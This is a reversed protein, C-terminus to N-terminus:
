QSAQIRNRRGMQLIRDFEEKTLPMVSLRSQKILRMESLKPEKKVAELTVPNPLSTEATLEVSVWRGEKATPDPKNGRSVRAIGMVAKLPEGEPADTGSHYYLVKDKVRMNQLNKCAQFNRVGTWETTGDKRFQTWSYGAPEQKVLWYQMTFLDRMRAKNDRIKIVGVTVCPKSQPM